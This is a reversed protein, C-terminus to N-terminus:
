GWELPQKKMLLHEIENKQMEVLQVKEAIINAEGPLRSQLKGTVIYPGHTRVLHGYQEYVEPFMVVECLGFRDELTLFKMYRRSSTAVRRSTVLWGCVRIRENRHEELNASSVITAWDIHEEF